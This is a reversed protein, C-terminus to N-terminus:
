ASGLPALTLLKHLAEQQKPLTGGSVFMNLDDMIKVADFLHHAQYLERGHIFAEGLEKSELTKHKILLKVLTKITYMLAVDAETIYDRVEINDVPYHEKIMEFTTASLAHKPTGNYFRTLTTSALKAVRAIETLTINYHALVCKLYEKQKKILDTKSTM